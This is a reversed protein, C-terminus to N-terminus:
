QTTKLILHTLVLPAELISGLMHYSSLVYKISAIIISWSLSSNEAILSEYKDVFEKSEIAPRKGMM